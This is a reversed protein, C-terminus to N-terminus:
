QDQLILESPWIYKGESPYKTLFAKWIVLLDESTALASISATKQVHKYYFDQWFYILWLGSIANISEFWKDEPLKNKLFLYNEESVQEYIEDNFGGKGYPIRLLKYVESLYCLRKNERVKKILQTFEKIQEDELSPDLWQQFRNTPPINNLIEVKFGKKAEFKSNIELIFLLFDTFTKAPFYPRKNKFKFKLAQNLSISKFKWKRSILHDLHILILIINIGPNKLMEHSMIYKLDNTFNFNNVLFDHLKNVDDDLFNNKELESFLKIHENWYFFDNNKIPYLELIKLCYAFNFNEEDIALSTASNLVSFGMKSAFESKIKVKAIEDNKFPVNTFKKEIKDLKKALNKDMNKLILSYFSLLNM